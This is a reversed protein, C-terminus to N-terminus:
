KKKSFLQKITIPLNDLNKIKVCNYCELEELGYNLNDLNSLSNNDGCYLIKLSSPLFDLQTLQNLRCYLIELRGPLNNLTKVYNESCILEVLERPLNDLSTFYCQSCDLIKLSDPLTFNYCIHNNSCNLYEVSNPINELSKIQNCTIELKKLKNSNPFIIESIDNFSCIFIELNDLNSIDFKDKLYNNSCDLFKINTPLIISDNNSLKNYSCKLYELNTLYKINIKDILNFSIDLHVLTKSLNNINMIENSSCILKNLLIFKTLDLLGLINSHSLHLEVVDYNYKELINITCRCMIKCNVYIKKRVSYKCGNDYTYCLGCACDYGCIEKRTYNLCIQETINIGNIKYDIHLNENSCNSFFSSYKLLKM